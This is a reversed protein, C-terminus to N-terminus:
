DDGDGGGGSDVVGQWEHRPIAVYHTPSLCVMQLGVGSVWCSFWGQGRELGLELPFGCRGGFGIPVWFRVAGGGWFRLKM